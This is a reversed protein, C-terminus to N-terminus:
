SRKAPCVRYFTRANAPALRPEANGTMWRVFFSMRRHRIEACRGVVALTACRTQARRPWTGGGSCLWLPAVRRQRAGATRLPQCVISRATARKSRRRQALPRWTKLRSRTRRHRWGAWSRRWRPRGPRWL